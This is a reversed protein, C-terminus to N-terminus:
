CPLVVEVKFALAPGPELRAAGSVFRASEVRRAGSAFQFRASESFPWTSNELAGSSFPGDYRVSRRLSSAEKGVM